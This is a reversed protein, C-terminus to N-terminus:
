LRPFTLFAKKQVRARAGLRLNQARAHNGATEPPPAHHRRERACIRARAKGYKPTLDLARAHTFARASPRLLARMRLRAHFGGVREPSHASLHASYFLRTLQKVRGPRRRLQLTHTEVRAFTDSSFPHIFFKSM